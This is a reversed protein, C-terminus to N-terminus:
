RGMELRAAEGAESLTRKYGTGIRAPVTILWGQDDAIKMAALYEDRSPKPTMRPDVGEERIIMDSLQAQKLYLHDLACQIIKADRETM